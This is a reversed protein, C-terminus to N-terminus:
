GTYASFLLILQNTDFGLAKPAAPDLFWAADKPCPM